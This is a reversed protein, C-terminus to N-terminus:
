TSLQEIQQELEALREQVQEQIAKADPM